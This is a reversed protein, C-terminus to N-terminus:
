EHGTEKRLHLVLIEKTMRCYNPLGILKARRRLESMPLEILTSKVDNKKLWERVGEKNFDDILKGLKKQEKIPAKAWINVFNDKLLLLDIARFKLCRFHTKTVIKLM